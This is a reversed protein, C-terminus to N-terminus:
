GAVEVAALTEEVAVAAAFAEEGAVAVIGKELM